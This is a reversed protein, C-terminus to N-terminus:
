LELEEGGGWFFYDEGLVHDVEFGESVLLSKLVMSSYQSEPTIKCNVQVVKGTEESVEKLAQIIKRGIGQRRYEEELCISTMILREKTFLMSVIGQFDPPQGMRQMMDDATCRDHHLWLDVRNDFPYLLTLAEDSCLMKFRHHITDLTVNYTHIMTSRTDHVQETRSITLVGKSFFLDKVKKKIKEL